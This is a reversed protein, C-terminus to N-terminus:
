RIQYNLRMKLLERNKYTSSYYCDFISLAERGKCNDLCEKIQSDYPNLQVYYVEFRTCMFVEEMSTSMFLYSGAPMKITQLHEVDTKTFVEM